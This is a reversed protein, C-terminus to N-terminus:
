KGKMIDIMIGAIEKAAETKRYGIQSLYIENLQKGDDALLRKITDILYATNKCVVGLNNNVAYEPNKEEQGTLAGTIVVPKCLNVAEMLANPSARLILIDADTM